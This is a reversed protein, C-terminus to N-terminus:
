LALRAPEARTHVSVREYISASSTAIAIIAGMRAQIDPHRVM